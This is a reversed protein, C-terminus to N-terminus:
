EFSPFLPEQWDLHRSGDFGGFREEYPRALDDRANRRPLGPWAVHKAGLLLRRYEPPRNDTYIVLRSLLPLRPAALLAALAETSPGGQSRLILTTLHPLDAEALLRVGEDGIKTGSLDLWRLRRALPSRLLRGLGDATVETESLDLHSLSTLHPSEALAAVGEDGFQELYFALHDIRSAAPNAALAVLVEDTVGTDNYLELRRLQRLQPASAIALAGETEDSTTLRLAELPGWSDASALAAGELYAELRRVGSRCLAEGLLAGVATDRSGVCALNLETLGGWTPSGVLAEMGARTLGNATLDLATLAGACPLTLLARLSDDGVREAWTLALARLSGLWAPAPRKGRGILEAFREDDLRGERDGDHRLNLRRLGTLLPSATLILLAEVPIVHRWENLLHLGRVRALHPSAALEATADLDWADEDVEKFRVDTVPQSAFLRDAAALFAAPSDCRIGDLFGRRFRHAADLDTFWDKAHAALLQRERTQLSAYRDAAPDARALGVGVRILEARESEGHEEYWDALVLRSADDDPDLLVSALLAEANM